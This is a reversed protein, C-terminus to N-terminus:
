RYSNKKLEVSNTSQNSHSVGDLKELKKDGEPKDFSLMAEIDSISMVNIPTNDEKLGNLIYRNALDLQTIGTEASKLKLLQKVEENIRITTTLIIM